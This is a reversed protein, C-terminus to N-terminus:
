NITFYNGAQALPPMQLASAHILPVAVSIQESAPEGSQTPPPVSAPEASKKSVKKDKTTKSFMTNAWDSDAKSNSSSAEKKNSSFNGLIDSDDIDFSAPGRRGSPPRRKPKDKSSSDDNSSSSPRSGKPEEGFLDGTFAMSGGKQHRPKSSVGQSTPNYGSFSEENDESSRSNRGSKGSFDFSVNSSKNKPATKKDQLLNDMFNDGGGFMTSDINVEKGFLDEAKSDNRRKTEAKSTGGKKTSSEKSDEAFLNSVFDSLDKKKGNAAKPEIDTPIAGKSASASIIHIWNFTSHSITHM